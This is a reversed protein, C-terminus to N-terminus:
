RSESERQRASGGSRGGSHRRCRSSYGGSLIKRWVFGAHVGCNAAVERELWFAAERTRQDQLNPDLQTSGVGGNQSNPAVSVPGIGGITSRFDIFNSGVTKGDDEAVLGFFDPHGILLSAIGITAEVSPFDPAFNHASSVSDFADYM